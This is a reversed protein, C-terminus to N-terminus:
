RLTGPALHSLARPWRTALLDHRQRPCMEIRAHPIQQKWWRAAKSGTREDETGFLLLTKAGIEPIEVGERVPVALLVLREIEPHEAAVSLAAWGYDSWGAVGAVGPRWEPVLEVERRATEAPDPDTPPLLVVQRLLRVPYAARTPAAGAPPHTRDSPPDGVRIAVIHLHPPGWM